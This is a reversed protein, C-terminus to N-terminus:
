QTRTVCGHVQQLGEGVFMLIKSGVIYERDKPCFAMTRQIFRFGLWKVCPVSVAVTAAFLDSVSCELKASYELYFGARLNTDFKDLFGAVAPLWKFRVSYHTTQNKRVPKGKINAKKINFGYVVHIRESDVGGDILQQRLKDAQKDAAKRNRPQIAFVSCDM